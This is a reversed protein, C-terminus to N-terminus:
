KRQSVIFDVQKDLYDVENDQLDSDQIKMCLNDSPTPPQNQKILGQLVPNNWKDVFGNVSSDDSVYGDLYAPSVGLIKAFQEVKERPVNQQGTEIRNITSRASYGMRRALEAQSMGLRERENKIRIGILKDSM